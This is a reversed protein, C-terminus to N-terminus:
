QGGSGMQAVQERARSSYIIFKFPDTNQYQEMLKLYVLREARAVAESHAFRDRFSDLFSAALEYKGDATLRTVAHLLQGESLNLYNVLLEGRDARGLHDLGQLDVQWYGVSQDYVRDIVHERLLLYPLYAEPTGSLLTAPILNARHIAVREDGRMVASAVQDRLWALDTKLQALMAPSAFNRTLPEHGHLLVQPQLAVVVDIADLLGQLDGEPVFPAGIYPMIFDGVFLVKQAPLHIFLADHTEGGQVPILEIHTGGVNLETRQDVTVDPRFTRLEGLDFREGFFPRAFTAPAALDRTIEEQYNSRAYFKVRPNLSRFYAHGGIHDWHSHTILVTTLPPLTPAYARLAEYAARASDPRTGADIAILERGDESVVFYYETFEFGSLAYVRHPVIEAIRRPAFAHGASAEESFPTILIIPSHLDASGSRRRYDEAKAQDGDTLALLALHRYVERSWGAQPARQENAACWALEEQAAGRQGFFGPLRTYVVGAIWNVVYVQGGSLQKAQGLLTITDRVYGIRQWLPVRAANQARLMGIASLYLAKQVSTLRPEFDKLRASYFAVGREQLNANAYQAMLLFLLQPDRPPGLANITELYEIEPRLSGSLADAGNSAAAPQSRLAIMLVGLVLVVSVCLLLLPRSLMKSLNPSIM